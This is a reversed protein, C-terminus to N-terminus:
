KSGMESNGFWAHVQPEIQLTTKLVAAYSYKYAEIIYPKAEYALQMIKPVVIRNFKVFGMKTAGIMEQIFANSTILAFIRANAVKLARYM